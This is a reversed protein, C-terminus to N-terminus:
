SIFLPVVSHSQRKKLVTIWNDFLKFYYNTLYSFMVRCQRAFSCNINRDAKRNQCNDTDLSFNNKAYNNHFIILLISM